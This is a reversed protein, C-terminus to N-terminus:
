EVIEFDEEDAYVSTVNRANKLENIRKISAEVKRCQEDFEFGAPETGSRKAKYYLKGLAQFAERIKQEEAAVSVETSVANAARKAAAGLKDFLENM